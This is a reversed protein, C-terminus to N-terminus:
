PVWPGVSLAELPLASVIQAVFCIIYYQVVIWLIFYKFDMNIYIIPYILLRPFCFLRGRLFVGFLKQVHEGRLSTLYSGWGKLTPQM